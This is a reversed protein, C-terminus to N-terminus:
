LLEGQALPEFWDDIWFFERNDIDLDYVNLQPWVKVITAEKGFYDYMERVLPLQGKEECHATYWKKSRIKVKEGVAKM